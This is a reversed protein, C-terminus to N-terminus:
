VRHKRRERREVYETWTPPSTVKEFFRLRGDHAVVFYLPARDAVVSVSATQFIVGRAPAFLEDSESHVYWRDRKVLAVEELETWLAMSRAARIRADLIADETPVEESSRRMTFLSM